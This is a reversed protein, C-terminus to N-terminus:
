TRLMIRKMKADFNTGHAFYILNGEFMKESSM